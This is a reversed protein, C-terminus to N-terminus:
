KLRKISLGARVGVYFFLIKPDGFPCKELTKEHSREVAGSWVGRSGSDLHVMQRYFDHM